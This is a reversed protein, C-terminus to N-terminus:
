GSPPCIMIIEFLVPLTVVIGGHWVGRGQNCISADAPDLTLVAESRARPLVLQEEVLVLM